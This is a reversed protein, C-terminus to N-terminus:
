ATARTIPFCIAYAIIYGYFATLLAIAAGIGIQSPDDLCALLQVVGILAGIWGTAVFATIGTEAVRKVEEVGSDSKWFAAALFQTVDNWGHAALLIGFGVLIVFAIAPFDVFTMAGSGLQVALFIGALALVIGIKKM